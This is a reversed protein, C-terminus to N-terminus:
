KDVVTIRIKAKNKADDEKKKSHTIYKPLYAERTDLKELILVLSGYFCHTGM